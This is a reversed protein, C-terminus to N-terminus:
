PVSTVMVATASNTRRVDGAGLDVHAQGIVISGVGLQPIPPLTFDVYGSAPVTGLPFLRLPKVLLEVDAVGDDLVQPRTGLLLAAQSGPEAWTRWTTATDFQAEGLVELSPDLPEQIETGFGAVPAGDYGYDDNIADYGGFGGTLSLDPGVFRGVTATSLSVGHGGDGPDLYDDCCWYTGGDGGASTSLAVHLLGAEVTAGDSGRGGCVNGQGLQGLGGLLSTRVIEARSPQVDQVTGVTLAAVSNDSYCVYTYSGVGELTSNQCRVDSALQCLVRSSPLRDLLVMGTSDHVDYRAELGVVVVPKSATTSHVELLGLNCSPGECIRAGSEAILTLRKAAITTASYDGARVFIVDGDLAGAVAAPLDTYDVGPGGDDDVLLTGGHALSALFLPALMRLSITQTM